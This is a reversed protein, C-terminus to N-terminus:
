RQAAASTAALGARHATRAGGPRDATGFRRPGRRADAATESRARFVRQASPLRLYRGAWVWCLGVLALAAMVIVTGTPSRYAERGSGILSGAMAMGAPVVLVFRRAFRVGAQEARADKRATTDALRDEALAELRKGLDGGGVEHAILLTELAADATPDALRAKLVDTTRAFDVTLLWERHAADFAPRLQSPARAGTDFLAQPVSRGLSLTLLRIEEILRPWAEQAAARAAARRGRYLHAPTLAAVLALVAAPPLSGFVLYAAAGVALGVLLSVGAIDALRVDALGAQVLWERLLLRLDPGSAAHRSRRLGLDRRGFVVATYLLYTGAGALAAIALPTM